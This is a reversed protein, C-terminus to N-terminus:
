KNPDNVYKGYTGYEGCDDIVYIGLDKDYSCSRSYDTVYIDVANNTSWYIEVEIDGQTGVYWFSSEGGSRPLDGGWGANVLQEMYEITAVDDSIANYIFKPYLCPEGDDSFGKAKCDYGSYEYGFSPEAMGWISLRSPDFSPKTPETEASETEGSTENPAESEESTTIGEAQTSTDAPGDTTTNGGCAVLSMAMILCLILAMNRKM